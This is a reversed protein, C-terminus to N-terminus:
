ELIKFKMFPNLIRTFKYMVLLLDREDEFCIVEVGFIPACEKLTLILKFFGEPNENDAFICGIQIVPVEGMGPFTDGNLCELDFSLSRFNAFKGWEGVPKHSM